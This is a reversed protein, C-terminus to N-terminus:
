VMLVFDSISVAPDVETVAVTVATCSMMSSSASVTSIVAECLPAAMPECSLTVMVSSSAAGDSDTDTFLAVMASAAPAEVSVTLVPAVAKAASCVMVSDSAPVAM